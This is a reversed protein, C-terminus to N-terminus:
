ERWVDSLLRTPPHSLTTCFTLPLPALFLAESPPHSKINDAFKMASHRPQALKPALACPRAFLSTSFINPTSASLIDVDVASQPSHFDEEPELCPLCGEKLM